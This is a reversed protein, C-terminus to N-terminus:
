LDGSTRRRNLASSLNEAGNCYDGEQIFYEKSDKVLARILKEKVGDETSFVFFSFGSLEFEITTAKVLIQTSAILWAIYSASPNYGLHECFGESLLALEAM